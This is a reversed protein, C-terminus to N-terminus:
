DEFHEEKLVHFCPAATRLPMAGQKWARRPLVFCHARPILLEEECWGDTIVMVPAGTPFDPRSHLFSLAPQLVTGGRGKLPYVGRLDTPAVFGQDYPAADCLVLRVRPVDRAEAYSAIAGLARGLLERDMSGSTDLVVGFTCADKWEQPVFRAPRPIDPTSSQRRSARAYTRLPERVMPVNEEMWRALEVDWPVPPTFLSRVEELLGAPLTGRGQSCSMGAAVCRKYVDDLTVADGRYLRRAPSDYLVDGLGGRFGRAGKCRGPERMLLDYVEDASMGKLRPDYLGGVSPFQGVGMEILWDNIVFDCNHVLYGAAIYTHDETSLNYVLGDHPQTSVARVPYWVGHEDDRWSHSHSSITKGNLVRSSVAAGRPNWSLLHLALTTDTWRAGIQRPGRTTLRRSAGKGDQALLLIVDSILQESVSGLIVVDQLSATQRRTHGDGDVLGELFAARIAPDSHRLIVQPVRKEAARAGCHDKLWRGLVQSGFVVHTSTGHNNLVCSSCGIQGAVKHLRDIFDHEGTALSWQPCASSSDEAVYLGIMWATECDLPIQKLARNGFTHRGKTDTGQRIYPAFDLRTVSGMQSASFRPVLLYDGPRVAEAQVWDAESVRIPDSLGRRPRVFFPHEPTSRVSGAQCDIKILDGSYHREMTAVAEIPKGFGTPTGAPFCALNWVWPDRGRGRTHHLLAAHLLEHVYVFIVEPTTLGRGPHFYIEGLYADVAAVSIDMRDCAAADAVITMHAAVAGLLPFENMVWKRAAEGPRWVRRREADAQGLSQAAEEVADDVALRIGEALLAEWDLRRKRGNVTAPVPVAPRTVMDPRRVGALTKMDDLARKDDALADYVEEERMGSFTLDVAFDAPARGIKFAHLMTDAAHECALGWARPERGERRAAHSLGLHLLQHALVFTWEAEGLEQRKHPNVWVVGQAADVCAMEPDADGGGCEVVLVHALLPGLLSRALRRRAGWIRERTRALRSEKQDDKNKRRAM